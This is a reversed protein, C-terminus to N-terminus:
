AASEEADKPWEGKHATLWENFQACDEETAGSYSRGSGSLFGMDYAAPFVRRKTEEWYRVGLALWETKIAVSPPKDVRQRKGDIEEYHYITYPLGCRVCAGVGHTDCWQFRLPERCCECIM